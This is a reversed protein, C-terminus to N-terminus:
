TRSGERCGATLIGALSERYQKYKPWPVDERIRGGALPIYRGSQLLPSVIEDVQRRLDERSDARLLSLPIGGVLGLAPGYRRRLKRYDLEPIEAAESIWLMSIGAELMCPFLLASNGYTSILINSCGCTRAAAIIRRYAPIVFEEFMATSILPSKGDSIPESLYIFDPEMDRLATELMTACFEGYIELRSRVKSPERVAAVLAEKLTPWDRVGLAQFFGRWTWICVIHERNELRRVTSAWNAPFRRRSACFARGYDRVSLSLVHGSYRESCTLDPGVSEHPTLGFIEMHTRGAPMGQTRWLRIVAERVGEELLPPRDVPKGELLDRFRQRENM